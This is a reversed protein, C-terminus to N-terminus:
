DEMSVSGVVVQAAVLEPVGGRRACIQLHLLSYHNNIQWLKEVSVLFRHKPEANPLLMTLVSNLATRM